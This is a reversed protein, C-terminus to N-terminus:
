TEDRGNFFPHSEVLENLRNMLDQYNQNDTIVDKLKEEIDIRKQPVDDIFGEIDTLEERTKSPNM